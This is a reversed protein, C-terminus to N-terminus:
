VNLTFIKINNLIFNIKCYIKFIDNYCIVFYYIILTFFISKNYISFLFDTSKNNSCCVSFSFANKILIYDFVFEISLFFFYLLLFFHVFVFYLIYKLIYWCYNLIYWCFIIKLIKFQKFWKWLTLSFNLFTMQNIM